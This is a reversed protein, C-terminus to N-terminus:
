NLNVDPDTTATPPEFFFVVDAFSFTVIHVTMTDSEINWSDVKGTVTHKSRLYFQYVKGSEVLSAALKATLKM